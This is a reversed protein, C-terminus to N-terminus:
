RGVDCTGDENPILLKGAVCRDGKKALQSFGVFIGEKGNNYGNLEEM